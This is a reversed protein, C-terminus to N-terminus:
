RGDHETKRGTSMEYCDPATKIQGNKRSNIQVFVAATKLEKLIDQNTKHRLLAYIKCNARWFKM